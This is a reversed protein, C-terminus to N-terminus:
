RMAIQRTLMGPWRSDVTFTHIMLMGASLDAFSVLGLIGLDPSHANSLSGINALRERPV